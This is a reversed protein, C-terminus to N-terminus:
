KKKKINFFHKEIEQKLNFLQGDSLRIVLGDTSGAVLFPFEKGECMQTDVELRDSVDLTIEVKKTQGNIKM